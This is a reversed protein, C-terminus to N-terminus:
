HASTDYINERTKVYHTQTLENATIVHDRQVCVASRTDDCLPSITM